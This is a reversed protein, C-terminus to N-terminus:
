ECLDVATQANKGKSGTQLGYHFQALEHQVEADMPHDTYQRHLLELADRYLSDKDERVSNNHSFQLRLLDAALAPAVKKAASNHALIRQFLRIALWKGSTSDKSEFPTKVFQDAAAFAAAQDLQFAYAPETLWSRDNTFHELARHALLDFLTSRLPQGAVTDGAGPTLVDRFSEVPTNELVSEQTVSAAFFEFARKEIQAASWTLIDGGEGDPIPTRESLRWGQNSLYVKYIQGLISQLVAKEPYKATKEETEFLNIAKTLGDEELQATYKGRYLLAKIVQPHNKDNGAKTQIAEVRELASKFLGQRELSDVIKWDEPYDGPAAPLPPMPMETTPKDKISVAPQNKNAAYKCAVIGSIFLCLIVLPRNILHIPM